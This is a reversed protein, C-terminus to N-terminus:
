LAGDSSVEDVGLVTGTLALHLQTWTAGGDITTLVTGADGAAVGQGRSDLHVARLTATAPATIAVADQADVRAITGGAGVAVVVGAGTVWADELELARGLEVSRWTAGGDDSRLIADGSGAVALHAGDRSTTVVRAAPLSAIMAGAAHAADYRWVEGATDLAFATVATRDAAVALWDHAAEGPLHTWTAGSDSSMMLTRDGAVYISDTGPSAAGEWTVGGSAVSRLTATTGLDIVEWSDGGDFTRLMTGLEGVVFATDLGRCTIGLLDHNDDLDYGAGLEGTIRLDAMLGNEGVLWSSGGGTTTTTKKKACGALALSACAGTILIRKM